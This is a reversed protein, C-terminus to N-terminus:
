CLPHRVVCRNTATLHKAEVAVWGAGVHGAPLKVEADVAEVVLRKKKLVPPPPPPPPQSTKGDM